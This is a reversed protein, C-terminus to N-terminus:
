AQDFIVFRWIDLNKVSFQGLIISYCHFETLLVLSDINKSFIYDGVFAFIFIVSYCHSPISTRVLNKEFFDM